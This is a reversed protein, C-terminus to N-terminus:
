WSLLGISLVYKICPTTPMGLHLTFIYVQRHTQYSRTLHHIILLVDTRLTANALKAVLGAEGSINGPSISTHALSCLVPNGRTGSRGKTVLRPLYLPFYPNGVVVSDNPNQMGHTLYHTTPYTSYLPECAAVLVASRSRVQAYIRHCIVSCM